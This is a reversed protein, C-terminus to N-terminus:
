RVVQCKHMAEILKCRTTQLRRAMVECMRKFLDHAFTLDENYHQRLSDGDFFIVTTAEIARADFHWRYPQFVWSWGLPEGARVIDTAIPGHDMVSGELAIMGSEVLYFGRAPEGARFIMEDANFQKKTAYRALMELQHASMGALFPHAAIQKWIDKNDALDRSQCETKM